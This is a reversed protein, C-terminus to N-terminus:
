DESRSSNKRRYTFFDRLSCVGYIAYFSVWLYLTGWFLSGLFDSFYTM